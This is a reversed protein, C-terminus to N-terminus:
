HWYPKFDSSSLAYSSPSQIWRTSTFKMELDVKAIENLLYRNNLQTSSIERCPHDKWNIDIVLFDQKLLEIAFDSSILPPAYFPIKKIRLHNFTPYDVMCAKCDCKFDYKALTKQRKARTNSTFLPGYTIFIQEGAKIPQNAIFVLKNDFSVREINPMCSHNFLSAFLFIGKGYQQTKVNGIKDTKVQECLEFSNSHIINKSHDAFDDIEKGNVNNNEKDESICKPVAHPLSKFVKMYNENNLEGIDFITVNTSDKVKENSEPTKLIIKDIMQSDGNKRYKKCGKHLPQFQEKCSESCFM